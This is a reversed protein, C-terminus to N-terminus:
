LSNSILLVYELYKFLFLLFLIVGRKKPIKKEGVMDKTDIM